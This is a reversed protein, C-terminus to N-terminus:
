FTWESTGDEPIMYGDLARATVTVETVGEPVTYTGAVVEGDILYEVGEFDMVTILDNGTGDNDFWSPAPPYLFDDSTSSSTTTPTATLLGM